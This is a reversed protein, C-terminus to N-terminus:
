GRTYKGPSSFSTEEKLDPRGRIECWYEERADDDIEVKMPYLADNGDKRPGSIWYEEGSDVDFYNTKYGRGSLTQFSRGQYRITKGSKSFSVRGIRGGDVALGGGPEIYMIRTKM